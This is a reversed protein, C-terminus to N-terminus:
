FAETVIGTESIDYILKINDNVEGLWLRGSYLETKCNYQIDLRSIDKGAAKSLTEALIMITKM